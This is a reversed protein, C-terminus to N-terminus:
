PWSRARCRRRPRSRRPSCWRSRTSAPASILLAVVNVAQEGYTEDMFLAQCEDIVVVRPRLRADKEALKRSVKREGHEKLAKGRVELEGYLANLTDLCAKATEAGAGTRLSRLRPAFPDYDANEALVFVDVEVLPDLIAGAVLTILLTSKGSGMIGAVAYNAEFLRGTVIDGRINMGAPVGKFYDATGEHLLPWDEVPGSLAGQNAVWLDLVGPKDKPESPWVEVPLRVLNHALIAKRKVIEFVPVGEPLVLRMRWGKGEQYPPDIWTPTISSGWGAKFADRLKPLGTLHRLANLVASEDPIISRWRGPRGPRRRGM